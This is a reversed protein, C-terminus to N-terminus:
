FTKLKLPAKDGSERVLPDAGPDREWVETIPEREAHKGHMMCTWGVNKSRVVGRGM